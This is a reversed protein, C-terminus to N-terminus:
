SCIEIAREVILARLDVTPAPNYSVGDAPWLLSTAIGLGMMIAKDTGVADVIADRTPKPQDAPGFEWDYNLPGELTYYALRNVVGSIALALNGRNDDVDDRDSDVLQTANM